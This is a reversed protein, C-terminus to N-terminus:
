SECGAEEARRNRERAGSPAGRRRLSVTLRGSGRCGALACLHATLVENVGAGTENPVVLVQTPIAIGWRERWAATECASRDAFRAVECALVTSREVRSERGPRDALRMACVAPAVDLRVLVDPGLRARGPGSAAIPLSAGRYAISGLEQLVGQDFVHVGPRRRCRRILGRVALWSASRAVQDRLTPQGSAIAHVARLSDMPAHLVEGVVLSLKLVTRPVVPRHPGIRAVPESAAVGAEALSSALAHAM